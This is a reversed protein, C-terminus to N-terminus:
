AVGMGRRALQQRLWRCRDVVMLGLGRAHALPSWDLAFYQALADTVGTTWRLDTERAERYSQLVMESGPDEGQRRATALAESLAAVDRLALNFGQGAVPHLTHAANGVIILRADTDRQARVRKLPYAARSGVQLFRGLRYGFRQQLAALFEADDLALTAQAQEDSRVWVLSCRQQGDPGATLPLLAVPGEDTFREYAWGEHKKGPTVNAIVATQGFDLTDVEIGAMERVASHTGDAAILLRTELSSLRKGKRIRLALHDGRDTYDELTAPTRVDVSSATLAAALVGGLDRNAIVYGLAPVQEEQHNLRAAGLYGRQSVHIHLIPEVHPALAEWLGLRELLRRSGYSLATSRDDYSPQGPEGPPHAELLTVAYDQNAAALALSAGVMGGGVIVLDKRAVAPSM